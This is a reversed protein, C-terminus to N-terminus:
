LRSSRKRRDSHGSQVAGFQPLFKSYEATDHFEPGNPHDWEKESILGAYSFFFGQAARLAKFFIGVVIM